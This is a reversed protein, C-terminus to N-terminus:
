CNDPLGTRLTKSFYLIRVGACPDGARGTRYTNKAVLYECISERRHPPLPTQSINKRSSPYPRIPPPVLGNSSAASLQSSPLLALARRESATALGALAKPREQPRPRISRLVSTPRLRLLPVTHRRRDKPDGAAPFVRYPPNKSFNGYGDDKSSRRSSGQTRRAGEM